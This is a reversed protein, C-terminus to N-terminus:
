KIRFSDVVQLFTPSSVAEPNYNRVSFFLTTLPKDNTYAYYGVVKKGPKFKGSSIDGGLDVGMKERPYLIDFSYHLDRQNVRDAKPDDKVLDVEAVSMNLDEDTSINEAELKVLYVKGSGLQSEYSDERVDLLTYRIQDSQITKGKDTPNLSTGPNFDTADLTESANNTTETSSTSSQSTTTSNANTDGRNAVFYAGGAIVVLGVVGAILVNRSM